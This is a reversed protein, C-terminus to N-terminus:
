LRAGSPARTWISIAVVQAPGEVAVVAIGEAPTMLLVEGERLKFGDGGGDARCDPCLCMQQGLKMLRPFYASCSGSIGYLVLLSAEEGVVVMEERHLKFSRMRHSAGPATWISLVSTGDSTPVVEPRARQSFCLVDAASIDVLKAAQTKGDITLLGASLGSVLCLSAAGEGPVALQGETQLVQWLPELQTDPPYRVVRGNRVFDQSTLHRVSKPPRRPRPVM